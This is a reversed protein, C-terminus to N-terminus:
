GRPAYYGKRTLVKMDKDKMEVRIKRYNGDRATNAPYYGITYQSRLEESIQDFARELDRENNVEIMRGGTEDAMKKAVGAGGGGFGFGGRVGILLVHIVTDTRQAYELAENLRVKSGTDEADTLLILAKRGSESALKEKTALYLADYLNTGGSRTPITGPTIGGVPVHVQARRIARDLKDNDATFDAMLDVDTDFTMIMALDKKPRLVRRLFRSAAEQEAGFIPSMSGSTDMLVGLTLPLETESKFFDIQQPKGDEYVEFAEKPLNAILRKGKDRVSAFLNVLNVDVRIPGQVPPPNQPPRAQRTFGTTPLALALAAVLAATRTPTKTKMTIIANAEKQM